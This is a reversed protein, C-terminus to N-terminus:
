KHDLIGGAEEARAKDIARQVRAPASNDQQHTGNAGGRPTSEWTRVCAKWSKIKNKGRMWGNAEYHDIFHQPDINNNREQCYAAVEELTPPTFRGKSEKRKQETRNEEIRNPPIKDPCEGSVTSVNGQSRLVKQTYEDTRTAMKLCTIIGDRNEFLGWKVMDSMMEQVREQHLGTDMAILEADHELEFTLNHKEVTQAVLELCYWYLGYGEMGYKLRVRKLKADISANSDHKFWKIVCRRRTTLHHRDM